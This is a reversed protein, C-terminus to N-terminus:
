GGRLLRAGGRREEAGPAVRRARPRGGGARGGGVPQGARALRAAGDYRRRGRGGEGRPPRCGPRRRRVVPRTRHRHAGRRRAARRHPLRPRRLRPGPGAHGGALGRAAAAATLPPQHGARLAPLRVRPGTRRGRAPHTGRLHRHLARVQNPNPNPNPDPNPDPNARTLTVTSHECLQNPNANPPSNPHRHLARVATAAARLRARAATDRARGLARGVRRARGDGGRGARALRLGHAAVQPAVARPVFPVGSAPVRVAYTGHTPARPLSGQAEPVYPM